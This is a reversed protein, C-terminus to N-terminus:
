SHKLQIGYCGYDFDELSMLMEAWGDESWMQSREGAQQECGEEDVRV